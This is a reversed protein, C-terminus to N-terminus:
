GALYACHRCVRTVLAMAARPSPLPLAPMACLGRRRTHSDISPPPRREGPRPAGEHPRSASAVFAFRAWALARGSGASEAAATSLPQEGKIFDVALELGYTDKDCDDLVYAGLAFPFLDPQRNVWDLTFLMCELAQIGGQPMIKGCTLQDEREHVMMLGGLVVDGELVAARKVPWVPVRVEAPKDLDACGAPPPQRALLLLQLVPALLVVRAM